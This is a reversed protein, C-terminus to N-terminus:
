KKLNPAPTVILMYYTWPLVHLGQKQVAKKSHHNKSSVGCYVPFGRAHLQEATRRVVNGSCGQGRYQPLTYGHTMAAYPDSLCWSVVQGEKDVLCAKPFNRILSDLYRLSQSNGGFYWTENLLTTHSPNLTGFCLHESRLGSPSLTSPDPHMLTLYCYPELHVGRAEAISKTTEYLGDQLGQLQFAKGWDIAGVNELLARCADIDWYFAAHLNAYYDWKDQVVEKCPRTLVVKFEPWSDVVVEHQAPNGHKIHM